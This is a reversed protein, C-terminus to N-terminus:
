FGVNVPIEMEIIQVNKPDFFVIVARGSQHPFWCAASVQNDDLWRVAAEYNGPDDSLPCPQLRLTVEMNGFTYSGVQEWAYKDAHMAQVIGTSVAFVLGCIITILAKM